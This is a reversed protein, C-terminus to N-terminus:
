VKVTAHGRRRLERRLLRLRVRRIARGTWRGSAIRSYLRPIRAAAIDSVEERDDPDVLGHWASVRRAAPRAAAAFAASASARDGLYGFLWGLHIAANEVVADNGYGIALEYAARADNLEGAADWAYALALAGQAGLEGHGCAIAERYAALADPRRGPLTLLLSGLAVWMEHDGAAIAEHYAAEAEDGCDPQKALLLALNRWAGGAVANSERYADIAERDRGARALRWGLRHWADGTGDATAERLRREEAPDLPEYEVCAIKAGPRDSCLRPM